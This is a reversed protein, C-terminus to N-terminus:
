QQAKANSEIIFFVWCFFCGDLFFNFTIVTLLVLMKRGDFVYFDLLYRSSNMYSGPGVWSPFGVVKVPM